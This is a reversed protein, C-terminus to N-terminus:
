KFINQEFQASNFYTEQENKQLLAMAYDLPNRKNSININLKNM